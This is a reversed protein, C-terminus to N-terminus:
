EIVVVGSASRGWIALDYMAYAETPMATFSGAHLARTMYTLTTTGANMETIFFSVRDGFVEKHNYGLQEWVTRSDAYGYSNVRSTSSLNENLAELGGPLKDEILMYAARNPMTITLRVRVLQGPEITTLPQNSSPDLYTRKIEIVGAAEIESQAEYLRHNLTLYLRGSGSSVVKVENAGLQLQEAPIELSASPQGQGLTGSFVTEGNLLVTYETSGAATSSSALLHDTLGLIAFSTENTTGWGQARRQAMLWRVIGAELESNPRIQAFASLVLATNRTNSAMTKSRYVGDQDSGEWYVHGNDLVVATEVLHDLVIEAAATNGVKHLALALSAQAFADLKTWDGAFVSDTVAENPQGAVAMTYLAYARTRPDLAQMNENLWNAGRELVAEDVEYGAEQIQALGFLVWATQYAESADDFWWGWGGDDHQFGYLKQLSANVKAPLEPDRSGIGLQFFARSVVANPLASSMTQEVCGYPFGTLYDLGEVLSGAISRSLEIKVHSQPLADPTHTLTTAWEGRFDGIETHVTPIALPRIPLPLEIADVVVDGQRAMITIPLEGAQEATLQWGVIQRSNPAVTITQVADSHRSLLSPDAFDALSVTLVATEAGFNQVLASLQFSDGATVGRPMIPDVAIEQKALVNTFTEGVQTDATTAIATLRWSTLSDPMTTTISVEGNFDTHLAPFWVATDPFDRRPSQSGDGGGGGGGGLGDLYRAPAFSDYSIVRREREFYFADYIPGALEDSLGFIAEDVMALSVEASVPVGAPNTVRITFTAEERPAYATKNPTITVQLQKDRAPVSLNTSVSHLRGDSLSMYGDRGLATDQREWANVTVHINPVDEPLIPVEIQTIPATLEILQERRTTAREFTLLAPGSFTSQILLEATEGPAYAQDAAEINLANSQAGYWTGGSSQSVVYVGTEFTIPQDAADKGELRIQHYGPELITMPITAEGNADTTVSDFDVLQGEYGHRYHRLRINLLRGNIPEGAITEATIHLNFPQDEEQVYGNTTLSVKERASFIKVPVFSSVTQQSGDNVTAEVAVIAELLNSGWQNYDVHVWRKFTQANLTFTFRGNEDTKGRQTEESMQYWEYPDEGAQAWYREYLRYFHLEVDANAVPEGLFYSSDITVSMADGLAYQPQDPTVTVSYDPKRYDEVKFVQSHRDGDVVLELTYVGLMAGDALTFRGNISGFDNTTLTTTQVKNRRADRVVMEVETGAPIMDLVADSDRRIIAKYNVTQGPKYIPRDTYLHAATHPVAVTAFGSGSYWGGGTRWGNSVATIIKDGAIEAVAYAVDTTGNYHAVGQENSSDQALSRGDQDYFTVTANPTARGDLQSVWATMQGDGQKLLLTQDSIILFIQDQLRGNDLSLLYFGKDVSDPVVMEREAGGTELSWRALETLQSTDLLTQAEGWNSNIGGFGGQYLRMFSAVDLAHLVAEMKASSFGQMHIARRSNSTIAQVHEGYGFSAVPRFYSTTFRLRYPERLLSTGDESTASTALTIVYNTNAVLSQGEAAFILTAGEWSFTGAIAPEIAFAAETTAKDMPRDFTMEITAVPNVDQGQPTAQTILPPTTVAVDDPMPLTLGRTTQLAQKFRLQYTTDPLLYADPTFIVATKGKTFTWEGALPPEFGVAELFADSDLPYNAKLTILQPNPANATVSVEAIAGAMSYRWSYPRGFPINDSDVATQALDFAYIQDFAMPEQLQILLTNDRWSLTYALQPTVSLATEVSEKNMARNFTLTIEPQPDTLESSTPWRSIKVSPAHKIRWRIPAEARLGSATKLNTHLTITTSSSRYTTNPTFTVATYDGNWEFSGAVHPSLLFPSKVSSPSMPQNFTVTLPVSDPYADLPYPEALTAVVSQPLATPEAAPITASAVTTPSVATADVLPEATATVEVVTTVTNPDDLVPESAQRCALLYVALLVLLLFLLFVRKAKM